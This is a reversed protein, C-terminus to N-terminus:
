VAKESLEEEVIKSEVVMPFKLVMELWGWGWTLPCLPTISFRVAADLDM